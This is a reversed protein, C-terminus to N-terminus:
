KNNPDIPLQMVAEHMSEAVGNEGLNHYCKYMIDYIKKETVGISQAHTYTKYDTCLQRLLLAQVGLKLTELDNKKKNNKDGIMKWGAMFVAILFTSVITPVGILMLIEYAGM